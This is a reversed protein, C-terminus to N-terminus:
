SNTSNRYNYFFVCLVGKFSKSIENRSDNAALFDEFTFKLFRKVRLCWLEELVFREFSKFM